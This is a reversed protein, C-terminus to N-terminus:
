VNDKRDSSAYRDCAKKIEEYPTKYFWDPYYGGRVQPRKSFLQSGMPILDLAERHLLETKGLM